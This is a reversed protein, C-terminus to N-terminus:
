FQWALSGVWRRRAPAAAPLQAAPARSDTTTLFLHLPGQRWSLGASSYLFSSGLRPALGRWGLGLDLALTGALRQHLGIDVTCAPGALLGSGPVFVQTHPSASFGATVQGRWGLQLAAEQYRYARARAGGLYAYQAASALLSWDADLQWPKSVALSAEAQGGQAQLVPGALGASATVGAADFARSADLLWVPRGQSQSAGRLVKDSAVAVAAQWSQAQAPWCPGLTVVATAVASALPRVTPKQHRM